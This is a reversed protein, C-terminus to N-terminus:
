GGYVAIGTTGEQTLIAYYSTLQIAKDLVEATNFNLNYHGVGEQKQSMIKQKTEPHRYFLKGNRKYYCELKQGDLHISNEM